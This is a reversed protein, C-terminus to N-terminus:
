PIDWRIEVRFADTVPDDGAVNGRNTESAHAYTLAVWSDGAVEYKVGLNFGLLEDVIGSPFPPNKDDGPQFARLDRGEGARRGFVGTTLVLHARPYVDVDLRWTDTDPSPAGGLLVDGEELEGAGSVYTSLSDVHSYTYIDVWRYEGSIALGLPRAPVWRFGVDFALKDPFGEEREFQFDDVLFSGYVTVGDIVHTKADVAWLINDDNTRENYQNAYFWALPLMYLM